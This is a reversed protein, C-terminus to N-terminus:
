RGFHSIHTHTRAPAYLLANFERSSFYSSDDCAHRALGTCRPSSLLGRRRFTVRGAPEPSAKRDRISPPDSVAALLADPHVPRCRCIRTDNSVGDCCLVAISVWLMPWLWRKLLRRIGVCVVRCIRSANNTAQRLSCNLQPQAQNGGCRKSVADDGLENEMTAEHILLTAGLGAQVLAQALLLQSASVLECQFGGCWLKASQGSMSPYRWLLRTQLRGRQSSTTPLNRRHSRRVRLRPAPSRRMDPEARAGPAFIWGDAGPTGRFVRLAAVLWAHLRILVSFLHFSGGFSASDPDHYDSLLMASPRVEAQQYPRYRYCDPTFAAVDVFQYSAAAHDVAAYALLWQHLHKPGIVLLPPQSNGTSVGPAAPLPAVNGKNSWQFVSPFGSSDAASKIAVTPRTQPNKVPWWPWRASHEVPLDVPSFGTSTSATQALAVARRGLLELLGLHHDAHM